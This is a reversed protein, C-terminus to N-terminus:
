AAAPSARPEKEQRGRGFARANMGNPRRQRVGSTGAQLRTEDARPIMEKGAAFIGPCGAAGVANLFVRMRCICRHSRRTVPTM